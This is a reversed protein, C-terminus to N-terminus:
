TLSPFSLSQCSSSDRCFDTEDSQLCQFKASYSQQLLMHGVKNAVRLKLFVLFALMEYTLLEIKKFSSCLLWSFALGRIPVGLVEPDIKLLFPMQPWLRGEWIWAGNGSTCTVALAVKTFKHLFRAPLKRGEPRFTVSSYTGCFVWELKAKQDCM